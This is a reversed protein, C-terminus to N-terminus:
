GSRLEEQNRFRICFFLRTFFVITCYKLEKYLVITSVTAAGIVSHAQVRRDFSCTSIVGRMIPSWLVEYRKQQSTSLSGAYMSEPTASKMSTDGGAPLEFIAQLSYLDWLLTRNDKGCSHNFDYIIINWILFIFLFVNSFVTFISM